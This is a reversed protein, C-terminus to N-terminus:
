RGNLGEKGEHRDILDIAEWIADLAAGRLNRALEAQATKLKERIEELIEM